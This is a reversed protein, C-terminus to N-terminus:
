CTCHLQQRQWAALSRWDTSPTSQRRLPRRLRLGLRTTRVHTSSAKETPCNRHRVPLHAQAHVLFPKTASGTLSCQREVFDNAESCQKGASHFLHVQPPRTGDSFWAVCEGPTAQAFTTSLSIPVAIAGTSPDPSQGCHIVNTAFGGRTSVTSMERLILRSPVTPQRNVCPM